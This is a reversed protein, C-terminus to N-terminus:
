AEAPAPSANLRYVVIPAGNLVTERDFHMGVKEMVKRSGINEPHTLAILSEAGLVEFGMRLCARAVESALGQGWYPKFFLYGIEIEDRGDLQLGRLCGLGIVADDDQGTLLYVGYGFEDWHRLNREFYAATQEADRVGGLHAMVDPDSHLRQVDAVHSPLLRYGRLRPTEFADLDHQASDRSM